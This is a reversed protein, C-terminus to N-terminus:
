FELFLLKTELKTGIGNSEVFINDKSQSFGYTDGSGTISEYLVEDTIPYGFEQTFMLTFDKVVKNRIKHEGILNYNVRDERIQLVGKTTEYNTGNDPTQYQSTILVM